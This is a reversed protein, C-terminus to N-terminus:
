QWFGQLFENILEAKQAPELHCHEGMRINMSFTHVVLAMDESLPFPGSSLHDLKLDYERDPMAQAETVLQALAAEEGLGRLRRTRQRAEAARRTAASPSVFDQQRPWSIATPRLDVRLNDGTLIGRGTDVVQYVPSGDVDVLDVIDFYLEGGPIASGNGAYLPMTGLYMTPTDVAVLADCQGLQAAFGLVAALDAVQSESLQGVTAPDLELIPDGLVVMQGVTVVPRTGPLIAVEDCTFVNEEAVLPQFGQPVSEPVDRVAGSTEPLAVARVSEQSLPQESDPRLVIRIYGPLGQEPDTVYTVEGSCQARLVSCNVAATDAAQQLSELLSLQPKTGLVRPLQAPGTVDASFLLELMSIAVPLLESGWAFRPGRGDETPENCLWMALAQQKGQGGVGVTDPFQTTPAKANNLRFLLGMTGDPKRESSLSLFHLHDIPVAAKMFLTPKGERRNQRVTIVDKGAVAEPTSRFKEIANKYRDQITTTTM